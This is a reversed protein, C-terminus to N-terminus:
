GNNEGKQKEDADVYVYERLQEIIMSVIFGMDGITESSSNLTKITVPNSLRDDKYCYIDAYVGENGGYDVESVLILRTGENAMEEYIDEYTGHLSPDASIYELPTREVANKYDESKEILTEHIKKILFDLFYPRSNSILKKAHQEWAENIKEYDIVM